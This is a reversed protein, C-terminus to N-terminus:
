FLESLFHKLLLRLSFGASVIVETSIFARLHVAASIIIAKPLLVWLTETGGEQQWGVASM